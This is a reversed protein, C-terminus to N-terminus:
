RFATSLACLSGFTRHKPQTWQIIISNYLHKVYVTNKGFYARIQDLRSKQMSKIYAKGWFYARILTTMMRPAPGASSAALTCPSITDPLLQLRCLAPSNVIQWAARPPLLPPPPVHDPHAARAVPFGLTSCCHPRRGWQLGMTARNRGRQAACTINFSLWATTHGGARNSGWEQGTADCQGHSLQSDHLWTAEQRM